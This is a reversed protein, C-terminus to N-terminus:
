SIRNAGMSGPIFNEPLLGRRISDLSRNALTMARQSRRQQTQVTADNERIPLKRPLPGIVLAKPAGNVPAPQPGSTTLGPWVARGALNADTALNGGTLANIRALTAEARAFFARGIRENIELQQRSKVITGRTSSKTAIQVARPTPPTAQHAAGGVYRMGAQFSSPGFAGACLDTPVIGGDIWANIANLRRLGASDINQQIQLSTQTYTPTGKNGPTREPVVNCV